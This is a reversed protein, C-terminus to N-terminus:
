SGSRQISEPMKSSRRIKTRSSITFCRSSRKQYRHRKIKAKTDLSRSYKVSWRRLLLSHSLPNITLSPLRRAKNSCEKTMNMKVTAIQAVLTVVQISKRRRKIKKRPRSRNAKQSRKTRKQDRMVIWLPIMIKMLFNRISRIIVRTCTMMKLM